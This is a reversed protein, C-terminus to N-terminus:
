LASKLVEIKGSIFRKVTENSTLGLAREYSERAADTKGDEAFFHGRTIHFLNFSTMMYNEALRSLEDLARSAGEIKGVAVVRNLAVVPSFRRSLLRDYCGLIRPWDTSDYDPALAHLSSIEAEIHYDSLEDGSAARRFHELGRALM